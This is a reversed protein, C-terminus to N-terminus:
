KFRGVVTVGGKIREGKAVTIESDPPLYLEVRSGFRILGLREGCTVSDGKSLYCVIRRAVIGAIQVVAAASGGGINLIVVNRENDDSAKDRTAVFFRGPHYSIEKVRGTLPVRNMHVNFISMFISIRKAPGRTYRNEELEAVDLVRGDAPSVILGEGEPTKRDPNRFFFATFITLILLPWGAYWAGLLFSAASAAGFM